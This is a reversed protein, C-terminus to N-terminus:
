SSISKGDEDFQAFSQVLMIASEIALMHPHTVDCPQPRCGDRARGPQLGGAAVSAMTYEIAM